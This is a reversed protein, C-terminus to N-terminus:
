FQVGRIDKYLEDPTHAITIAGEKILDENKGFGWSVGITPIHFSNAGKVDYITDGIMISKNIDVQELLYAIVQAKQKEVIIM